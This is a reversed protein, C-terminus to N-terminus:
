FEEIFPNDLIENKLKVGKFKELEEPQYKSAQKTRDKSWKRLTKIREEMTKSLPFFEDITELLDGTQLIPESSPEYIKFLSENVVEGLEAGSFGRSKLALKDIDITDSNQKRLKIHIEFIEKREEFTPLDVFFIENFRGKRLLEPPLASIDNATALVFVESEKEQLWTLFTGFVRTSTGGDSAGSNAGGGLGKEIEDIWLVCPALSEAVKITQRINSESEGVIGGFVKGFDLRLLPMNWANSVAKASLSKGTGPIGLLMVGKPYSLGYSLARSSFAKARLRLWEKLNDLGGISNMDDKPHFYELFGSKKIIQEKEYTLSWIEDVGVKGFQLATKRTSNEVERMTLGLLSKAIAEDEGFPVKMDHLIRRMYRGIEGVTPLPYELITLDKELEKPMNLLPSFLIIFSNKRRLERIAVRFRTIIQPDNLYSHVNDFVYIAGDEMEDIVTAIDEEDCSILERKIYEKLGQADNYFFLKHGDSVRIIDGQFREWEYNEIYFATIKASMLLKLNKSFESLNKQM